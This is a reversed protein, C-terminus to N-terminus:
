YAASHRLNREWNKRKSQIETTTVKIMDSLSDAQSLCVLSTGDCDLQCSVEHLEPQSKSYNVSASLNSFETTRRGSWQSSPNNQPPYDTYINNFREHYRYFGELKDVLITNDRHLDQVQNVLSQRDALLTRISKSLSKMKSENVAERKMRESKLNKGVKLVDVAFKRTESLREYNEILHKHAVQLNTHKDQLIAHQTKMLALEQKTQELESKLVALRQIEKQLLISQEQTSKLLDSVSEKRGDIVALQEKLDSTESKL